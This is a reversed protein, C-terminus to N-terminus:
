SFNCILFEIISKCLCKLFSEKETMIDYMTNLLGEENKLKFFSVFIFFTSNKKKLQFYLTKVITYFNGFKSNEMIHFISSIFYFLILSRMECHKLVCYISEKRLNQGIILVMNRKVLIYRYISSLYFSHLKNNELFFLFFPKTYYFFTLPAVVIPVGCYIVCLLPFCL